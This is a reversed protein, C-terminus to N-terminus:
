YPRSPYHPGLRGNARTALAIARAPWFVGGPPGGGCGSSNGPPSTWLWADADTVGTETTPAPGLARGPPNCLDEVGQTTPHPNRKPGNGNQATNVIFHRGGTQNSIATAWRVENITWNLHTDNTFFGEITRVGSANLARATYAVSNSDSYGAELYTVAHPLAGLTAVEYRLAAEWAGLSGKRAMCSSSGLGDTELLLVVPRNEIAQAIENVRREFVPMYANIESTTSCGGLAPHLLYTSLIMISGPDATQNHCLLKETQGFLAGPGGGMSYISLRQVEPEAAIKALEDVKYALGKNHAILHHLSGTQVSAWFQAWSTDDSYSNPNRHLLQAIASAAAGHRPGDVFFAAGNLPDPGPPTPLALPNTPDRAASYPDPCQQAGAAQARPPRAAARGPSTSAAIAALALLTLAAVGARALNTRLQSRKPM